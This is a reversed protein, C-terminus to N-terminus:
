QAEVLRRYAQYQTSPQGAENLFSFNAFPGPAGQLIFPTVAKIRPDSWINQYAYEYYAALRSRTVPTDVWGTETIFVQFDRGTQQQLWALEYEFGRLSNQGRATPPASFAPNPYSHSNWYAINEFVDPQAAMMESLYGFAERTDPGNPAALDMAGPLVSYGSHKGWRAAFDLLQAYEVPDFYGGFEKRHNTENLFIVYRDPHPWALSDLFTYWDVIEQRNPVAWADAAPDYRTVMRVIPNVKQQYAADFFHQWQEKEQLQDLSLPITVYHWDQSYHDSKLLASARDLESPHLIHIGLVEGAEARIPLLVLFLTILVLQLKALINQFM